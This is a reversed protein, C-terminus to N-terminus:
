APASSRDIEARVEAATKGTAQAVRAVDDFEPKARTTGDSLTAVKVSVTQGFVTVSKM